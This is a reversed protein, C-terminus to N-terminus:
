GTCTKKRRVQGSADTTCQQELTLAKGDKQYDVFIDLLLYQNSDPNCEIINATLELQLGDDFLVNYERTDLIPNNHSRGVPNNDSDQKRSVVRGWAM